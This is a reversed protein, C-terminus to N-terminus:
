LCVVDYEKGGVLAHLEHAQLGRGLDVNVLQDKSRGEM